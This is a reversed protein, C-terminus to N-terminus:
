RELPVIPFGESETALYVAEAVLGFYPGYLTDPDGDYAYSVVSNVYDTGAAIWGGGSSGGTMDCGMANPRPKLAGRDVGGWASECTFLSEGDFPREAPYGFSSFSTRPQNFAIGRSGFADMLTTTGDPPPVYLFAVDFRWPKVGRDIGAIWQGTTWSNEAQWYGFPAIGAQYGPAFYVDDAWGRRDYLCHAATALTSENTSTVITASCYWGRTGDEVFLRGHTVFPYVATDAIEYRTYRISKELSTPRAIASRATVKGLAPHPDTAAVSYPPAELLPSRTGAPTVSPRSTTLNRPRATRVLRRLSAPSGTGDFAHSRPGLGTRGGSEAAAGGTAVSAGCLV